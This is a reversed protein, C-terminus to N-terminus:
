AERLSLKGKPSRIPDTFPFDSGLATKLQRLRFHRSCALARKWDSGAPFACQRNITRKSKSALLRSLYDRVGNAGALRSLKAAKGWRIVIASRM